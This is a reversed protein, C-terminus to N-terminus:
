ERRRECFFILLDAERLLEQDTLNEGARADGTREVIARRFRDIEDAAITRFNDDLADGAKANRDTRRRQVARREEGV